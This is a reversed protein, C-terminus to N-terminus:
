HSWDRRSRKGKFHTRGPPVPIRQYAFVPKQRGVVRDLFGLLEACIQVLPKMSNGSPTYERIVSAVFPDLESKGYPTNRPPIFGEPLKFGKVLVFRCLANQAFLQPFDTRATTFRDRKDAFYETLNCVSSPNQDPQGKRLTFELDEEAKMTKRNVLYSDPDIPFLPIEAGSERQRGLEANLDASFKSTTQPSLAVLAKCGKQQNLARILLHGMGEHALGRIHEGRDVGRQLGTSRETSTLDRMGTVTHYVWEMHPSNRYTSFLQPTNSVVNGPIPFNKQEAVEIAVYRSMLDQVAQQLREGSNIAM